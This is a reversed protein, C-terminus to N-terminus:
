KRKLLYKNLAIAKNQRIGDVVSQANINAGEKNTHTHDQPFYKKV